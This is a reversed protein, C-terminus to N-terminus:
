RAWTTRREAWTARAWVWAERGALVVAVGALMGAFCVDEAAHLLSRVAEAGCIRAQLFM